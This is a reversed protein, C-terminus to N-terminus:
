DALGDMDLTPLKVENGGHYKVLLANGEMRGSTADATVQKDLMEQFVKAYEITNISM